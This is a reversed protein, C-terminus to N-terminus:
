GRWWGQMLGKQCPDLALWLSFKFLWRMEVALGEDCEEIVLEYNLGIFHLVLTMFYQSELWSFSAVLHSFHIAADEVLVRGILTLWDVPQEYGWESCGEEVLTGRGHIMDMKM